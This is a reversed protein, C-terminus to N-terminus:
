QVHFPWAPAEIWICTRVSVPPSGIGTPATVNMGHARRLPSRQVRGSGVPTGEECAFAYTRRLPSTETGVPAPLLRAVHSGDGGYRERDSHEDADPEEDRERPEQDAVR